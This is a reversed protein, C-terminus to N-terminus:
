FPASNQPMLRLIYAGLKVDKLFPWYGAYGLSFLVEAIKVFGGFNQKILAQM